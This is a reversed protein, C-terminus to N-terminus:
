STLRPDGCSFDTVITVDQLPPRRRISFSAWLFVKQSCYVLLISVDLYGSSFLDVSIGNTTALSPPFSHKEDKKKKTKTGSAHKAKSKNLCLLLIKLFTSSLAAM